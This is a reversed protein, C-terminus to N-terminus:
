DKKEGKQIGIVKYNSLNLLPGSSSGIENFCFFDINYDEMNKIIGISYLMTKNNPFNLLYISKQSYKEKSIDEYMEYDIEFFSKIDLNDNDKIEIFTTDYKVSTYTKRSGDILIKSKCDNNRSFEVIKGKEIDKETLIHNNTMLVPLQKLQSPHPILCLFGIEQSGEKTKIKCISNEIQTKFHAMQDPTIRIQHKELVTKTTYNFDKM